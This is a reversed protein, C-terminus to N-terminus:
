RLLEDKQLKVSESQVKKGKYQEKFTGMARHMLVRLYGRDINLERCVEDKDRELLIARLVAQDRESLRIMTARVRRTKEDSIMRAELDAAVDPIDITELDAHQERALIRYQELLINGCVSNVYAGLRDPQRVDGTRVAVLVRLFTEQQVDQIMQVPLKRSRLKIGLLQAFYSVFHDQTARDGRRLLEMYNDDFPYLEVRIASLYVEAKSRVPPRMWGNNRRKPDLVTVKGNRRQETYTGLKKL